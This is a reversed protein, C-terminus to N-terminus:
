TLGQAFAGGRRKQDVVASLTANKIMPMLNMVEARVTNQIGTAFNISQNVVTGKAGNPIINGSQNPVFMEPGREGVMYPQGARVPGGSARPTLLNKGKEFIASPDAVPFADADFGPQDGFISRIIPNIVSMRMYIRLIEEVLQASMDKFSELASKTGSITEIFSTELSNGVNVAVDLFAQTLDSLEPVVKGLEEMEEKIKQTALAYQDATIAGRQRAELLAVEMEKLKQEEDSLGAVFSQAMEIKNNSEELQQNLKYRETYLVKLQAEEEKALQMDKPMNERLFKKLGLEEKTQTLINENEKVLKTRMAIFDAIRKDEDALVKRNASAQKELANNQKLMGRAFELNKIQERQADLMKQVGPTDVGFIAKFLANIPERNAKRTFLDLNESLRDLEASIESISEVRATAIGMDLLFRRVAKTAEIAKNALKTFSPVLTLGIEDGLESLESKLARSTNAFSDATRTADGQADGTGAMILNLRAQVKTAADIENYTKTVGMRLLENKLETETIVIGFRRVAEHNGVLASQFANMTEVDNANNFSAVDVALKTM